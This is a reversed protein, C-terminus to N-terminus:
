KIQYGSSIFNSPFILDKEYIKEWNKPIQYDNSFYDLNNSYSRFIGSFPVITKKWVSFYFLKSFRNINYFYKKITEIDMEHICDIAITLDFNKNKFFNLQHPMIFSIDYNKIENILEDENLSYLLGIKKNRFVNKLREYSIFLAPPIDCITYKLDKNFTLIAQSTRGSGAGIELINKKDTFSSFKNINDYDFISNIKDQSINNENIELFPDNYTLYGEDSLYNLKDLLDLKKLNLYLLYTLNNHKMSDTYSLNIQKKYLNVKESIFDNQVNLISQKINDNSVDIWTYYNRAITTSYNEINQEKIQKLNKINLYNWYNSMLEYSKSQIFFDIMKKLENDLDFSTKNKLWYKKLSHIPLRNYLYLLAPPLFAKLIKKM